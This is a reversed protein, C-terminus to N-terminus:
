HFSFTLSLIRSSGGSSGSPCAETCRGLGREMEARKVEVKVPYEYIRVRATEISTQFHRDITGEPNVLFLAFRRSRPNEAEGARENEAVDEIQLRHHPLIPRRRQCNEVKGANGVHIRRAHTNDDVEVDMALVVAAAEHGGADTGADHFQEPHGADIRHNASRCRGFFGFCGCLFNGSGSQVSFEGGAGNSGRM